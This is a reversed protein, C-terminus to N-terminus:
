RSAAAPSVQACTVRLALTRAGDLPLRAIEVAAADSARASGDLRVSAPVRAGALEVNLLARIDRAGDVATVTVHGDLATISGGGPLAIAPSRRLQVRANVGSLLAHRGQWVAQGDAELVLEVTLQVPARDVSALRARAEGVAAPAGAILVTNSKEDATLVLSETRLAFGVLRALEPAPRHHAQYSASEAFLAGPVLAAAIALARAVARYGHSRM